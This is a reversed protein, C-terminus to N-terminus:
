GIKTLAGKLSAIASGSLDLMTGEVKTSLSSKIGVKTTGEVEVKLGKIAVATTGEVKVKLSKM